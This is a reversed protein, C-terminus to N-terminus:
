GAVNEREIDRRKGRRFIIPPLGVVRCCCNDGRDRRRFRFVVVHRDLRCLKIPLGQCVLFKALIGLSVNFGCSGGGGGKTGKIDLLLFLRDVSWRSFVRRAICRHFALFCSRIFRVFFLSEDSMSEVTLLDHLCDAAVIDFSRASKRQSTEPV